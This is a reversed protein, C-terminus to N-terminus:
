PRQMLTFTMGHQHWAETLMVPLTSYVVPLQSSHLSERQKMSQQMSYEIM